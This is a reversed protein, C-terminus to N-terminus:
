SPAGERMTRHAFEDPFLQIASTVVNMASQGLGCRATDVLVDGLELLLDLDGPHAQGDLIRVLIDRTRLTGERCPTCQGCSEDIFYEITNRAAEVMDTKDNMVIVAGSGLMSGAAKLSEIDLRVDESALLSSAVGGPLAAKFRGGKVGEGHKEILYRLTIGMATEYVGPKNVHGSLCFLKPGRSQAPGISAYWEGGREIILPINCLTEVNNIVTPRSRFGANTPFPPKERPNARKGEMSNFLATEDGCIYAGAGVYMEVDFDYRSGLINKGLYGQDRAQFVAKELREIEEFYEGRIYIYGQSAGIAHGAIAMSELVAHPDHRLLVRDKFTGPEGEDANCIVYKTEGDAARTFDWKVGTPFGAGGRGRLESRKVEEIVEDPTMSLAKRLAQYAGHELAISIDRDCGKDLRRTLLPEM